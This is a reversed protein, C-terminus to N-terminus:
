RDLISQNINLGKLIKIKIVKSEINKYKILNLLNLKIIKKILKTNITIM